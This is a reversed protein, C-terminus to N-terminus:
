STAFLVDPVCPVAVDRGLANMAYAIVRPNTTYSLHDGYDKNCGDQTVINSVDVDKGSEAATTFQAHSTPTVVLDAHSSISVYKVGPVEVDSMEHTMFDSGTLLDNSAPGGLAGVVTSIPLGAADLEQYLHNVGVLTTGKLVGGLTIVKGVGKGEKRKTYAAAMSGGESYGIIDVDSGGLNERIADIKATVEDVSDAMPNLGNLGPILGPATANDATMPRPDGYNFGYVCFGAAALEPAMRAYTSYFNSNLGHLLVIPNEGPRPTCEVNAGQPALAPNAMGLLTAQVFSDEKPGHGVTEAWSVNTAAPVDVQTTIPKASAQPNTGVVGTMGAIATAAALVCAAVKKTSSHLSSLM